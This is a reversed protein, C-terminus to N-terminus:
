TWARRSHAQAQGLAANLAVAADDHLRKLNAACAANV